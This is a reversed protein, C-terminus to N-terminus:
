GSTRRYGVDVLGGGRLRRPDPAGAAPEAPRVGPRRRPGPVAVNPRVETIVYRLVTDNSMQVLVEAGIQVNWLPKFLTNEAHAFIYSNQNRGPQHGTRLIYAADRPPFSDTEPSTSQKVLVNIGVSRIELQVATM